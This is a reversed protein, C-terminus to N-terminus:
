NKEFRLHSLKQLLEQEPKKLHTPIEVDVQCFLNGRKRKQLYPLGEGKLCLVEGAQTGPPIKLRRQGELSPVDVEGGLLLDLYHVKIRCHLDQRNREFYKDKEVEVEVYLDGNQGGLYGGEGEGQIRLRVGTNVGPPISVQVRRNKKIRAKGRCAKCPHRIIKGKGNCAHCSRQFSFFGHSTGVRGQGHCHSCTEMSRGPELGKGKCTSCDKETTYDIYKEGGNLVEKLNLRQHYLLDRGMQPRSEKGMEGEEDSFFNEFIDTFNSFIDGLDQFNQPGGEQSFATPGFRDYRERKGPNGLIEYASAAEKFKQEAEKDNPNKDPHYKLALKRYASKIDEQSVDSSVGLVEYLDRM